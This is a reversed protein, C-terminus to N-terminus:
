TPWTSRQWGEGKWLYTIDSLWVQDPAKAHSTSDTSTDCSFDQGPLNAAVPLTHGSDTTVKYKRGAKARIGMARMLAQIRNLSGTYGHQACLVRYIRPAGYRGRHAEFVSRIRARLADRENERPSPVKAQWAHYGTQTVGLVRCVISLPYGGLEAHIFAYKM